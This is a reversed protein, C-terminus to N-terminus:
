VSSPNLGAAVMRSELRILKSQIIQKQSIDLRVDPMFRLVTRHAVFAHRFAREAHEPKSALSAMDMFTLALELERHLFETGCSNFDARPGAVELFYNSTESM